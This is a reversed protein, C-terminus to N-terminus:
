WQRPKRFAGPSAAFSTNSSIPATVAEGRRAQAPAATIAGILSPRKADVAKQETSYLFRASAGAGDIYRFDPHRSWSCCRGGKM